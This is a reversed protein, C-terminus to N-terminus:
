ILGKLKAHEERHCNSCLLMCKDLELEIKSGYQRSKSNSIRFDKKSPDIHHFELAGDYKKYGCSICSGGKYEICKRKFLQQRAVTQINTCSKCYPSAGSGNRRLYFYDITFNSKCMPCYILSDLDRVKTKKLCVVGKGIQSNRSKLNYKKMWYRISSKSKNYKKSIDAISLGDNILLELDKLNM